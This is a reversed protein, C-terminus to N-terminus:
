SLPVLHTKRRKMREAPVLWQANEFNIEEWRAGRLEKSRLFVYPMIMLAYKMSITGNYRELNNLLKGVESPDTICPRHRARPAPILADTIDAAINMEIYGSVKAYRFVNKIVSALRHAMEYKELKEKAKLPLLIDAITLEKIPKNGIFKFIHNELRQMLEEAYGPAKNMSAKKHWELAVAKFTQKKENVKKKIEEKKRKREESPNIGANLLKVIDRYLDHAQNLDVDKFNGLTITNRKGGYAYDCRWIKSGAKTVFIYFGLDTWIKYNEEKPQLSAVYRNTLKKGEM